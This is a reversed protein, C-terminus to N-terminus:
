KENNTHYFQVFNGIEYKLMNNEILFVLQM